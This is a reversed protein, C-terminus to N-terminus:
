KIGPIERALASMSCLVREFLPTPLKAPPSCEFSFVGEFGLERWARAFAKWDISGFFPLAHLDSTGYNDHIHLVRLVDRVRLMEEYINLEPFVNVHGTDLCMGFHPDDVGRIIKLIDAPLSHSYHHFPMNELCVTVGWERAAPMLARWFAVNIAFTQEGVGEPERTGFPTLPHVVMYKSGLLATVRVARRMDSLLADREEDTTDKPPYDWPGHVQCFAIGSKEALAREESVLAPLEEDTCRYLPLARNMLNLDVADFGHEKLKEYRAAGFRAVAGSTIGIPNGCHERTHFKTECM